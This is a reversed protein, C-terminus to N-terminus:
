AKAPTDLGLGGNAIYNTPVPTGAPYDRVQAPCIATALRYNALSRNRESDWAGTPDFNTLVDALGAPQRHKAKPDPNPPGDNLVNLTYAFWSMRQDPLVTPNAFTGPPLEDRPRSPLPQGPPSAHRVGLLGLDRLHNQCAVRNSRVRASM